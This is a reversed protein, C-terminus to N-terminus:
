EKALIRMCINENKEPPVGGFSSFQLICTQRRRLWQKRFHSLPYKRFDRNRPLVRLVALICVYPTKAPKRIGLADAGFSRAPSPM